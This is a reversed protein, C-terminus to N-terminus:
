AVDVQEEDSFYGDTVTTDGTPGTQLLYTRAIHPSLRTLLRGDLEEDTSLLVVQRSALPFYRDVLRDRHEGDLRGLPTDIVTPLHRGSARALGWLIAVALLQREGASLREAPLPEGDAALLTIGFSEPDLKLDSILRQKHLLRHLSDLIAAEVTATHRAIIRSRLQALTARVREAHDAVRTADDHALDAEANAAVAADLRRAAEDRLRTHSALDDEAVQLATTRQELDRVAAALETKAPGLADDNPVAALQRDLHELEAAAATLEARASVAAELAAPLADKLLGRTAVGTAPSHTAATLQLAERDTALHAAAADILAQRARNKHLLDLLERDRADLFDHLRRPDLGDGAGSAAAVRRLLPRALALPLAGAALERLAAEAQRVREVAQARAEVLDARADFLDGGEARYAAQAKELRIRAREVATRARARELIAAERHEEHAALVSELRTLDAQAVEDFHATRKRREIALLDTHLRDVLELGFLSRIAAGIVAGAQDPDALAEIKEGDFFFLSAVELPLLEEIHEDWNTTLVPDFQGDRRVVLDERITRGTNAFSRTVQYQHDEGDRRTGFSVEVFAGEDQPAARSITRRLFEDYALTGRNSCRARKGYLALQLTDLLTTKGGGNLGGILVVPREESTTLDFRHEGRYVGINFLVLEDVRV